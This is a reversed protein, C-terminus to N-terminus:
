SETKEIIVDCGKEKLKNLVENNEASITKYVDKDIFLFNLKELSLISEPLKSISCKYINIAELNSLEGIESPLESIQNGGISLEELNVLNKILDPIEEIEDCRISLYLLKEMKFLSDPLVKFKGNSISFDDLNELKVLNEPFKDINGFSIRLTELNKLNVISNPIYEISNGKLDLTKLNELEGVSDPIISISNNRLSLYELNKLNNIKDPIEEIENLGFDISQLTEILCIEEPFSELECEIVKIEELHSLNSIFKPLIYVDGRNLSLKKVNEKGVYCNEHFRLEPLNKIEGNILNQLEIMVIKEKEPIEAEFHDPNKKARLRLLTQKGYETLSWYINTDSATHKKASKKILELANFQVIISDFSNVDIDFNAVKKYEELKIKHLKDFLYDNIRNKLNSESSEDIMAPSIVSFIENWKFRYSSIWGTRERYSKIEDFSYKVNFYKEGGAYKETGKPPGSREKELEEQLTEIKMKLSLIEMTFDKEPLRDARVWGIAPNIKILKILSRSVVSGLDEANKWHKVMKKRTLSRFENLKKRKDDDVDTKNVPLSDPNIHLFAIIPKNKELAYRYEKETYSIGESDISGYRGGIIVIYYDCIDIVNKILTWQTEDAAPFLEMGAPICDLELLAHMVEQREEILDEYTSSVFVQYMKDFLSLNLCREIILFSITLISYLNTDILLVVSQYSQIFLFKLHSTNSTIIM